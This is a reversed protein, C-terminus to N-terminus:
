CKRSRREAFAANRRDRMEMQYCQPCLVERRDEGERVTYYKREIVCGCVDCSLPERRRRRLSSALAILTVVSLAIPLAVPPGGDEVFVFIFWMLATVLVLVTKVVLGLIRSIFGFM